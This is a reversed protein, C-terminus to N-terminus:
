PQLFKSGRDGTDPKIWFCKTIIITDTSKSRNYGMMCAINTVVIFYLFNKSCGFRVDNKMKCGETKKRVGNEMVTQVLDLYQKM